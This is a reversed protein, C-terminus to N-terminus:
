RFTNLSNLLNSVWHGTTPVWRTFAHLIASFWFIFPFISGLLCIISCYLKSAELHHFTHCSSLSRLNWGVYLWWRSNSQLEWIVQNWLITCCFSANLLISLINQNLEFQYLALLCIQSKHETNGAGASVFVPTPRQLILLIAKNLFVLLYKM